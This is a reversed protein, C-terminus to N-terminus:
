RRRSAPHVMDAAAREFGDIMKAEQFERSVRSRAADGMTIRREDNSLLAAAAAATLNADDAPVLVGTIDPLVYRQAVTDEVALVPVGLSMFDLIGYVATDSDAVVWGLRADRMVHLEDARDGLFTIRRPIGLAAAQMRLDDEYGADGTIVLQLEPHRPALMAVTRIAAVARSRASADHVCVIYEGFREGDGQEIGALPPQVPRVGLPTVISTKARRPLITARLDQESSFMFSTPALWTAVRGSRHMAVMRGDPVRRVVPAHSGLRYAASAVLHERDTHVFVVEAHARRAVARLRRAAGLWTGEFSCPEVDFLPNGPTGEVALQSM